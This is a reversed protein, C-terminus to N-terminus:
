GEAWFQRLLKWNDQREKWAIIRAAEAETDTAVLLPLSVPQPFPFRSFSIINSKGEGFHCHKCQEIPVAQEMEPTMADNEFPDVGHSMFMAFEMDSATQAYLGGAQGAFLRFRSLNFQYVPQLLPPSSLVLLQVSETIPAPVIHGGTDILLIRRVLAVQTGEPLTATPPTTGPHSRAFLNSERLATIFDLTAQRGAPVHYLVYYGSNGRFAVVHTYATIGDEVGVNIWPSNAQGLEPPLFPVLTQDPNFQTAFAHSAVALQYNSLTM